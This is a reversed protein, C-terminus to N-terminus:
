GAAARSLVLLVGGTANQLGHITSVILIAKLTGRERWTLLAISFILFPWWVVLGWVPSALSHAVAWGIASLVVAPGFGFLRRFGLLPLLMILTELLPGVVILLFLPLSGDVPIAPTNKPKILLGVLTALAFSPLMALLWAKPIYSAPREPVFLFKPLFALYRPREDTRNPATM